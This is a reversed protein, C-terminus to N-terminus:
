GGARRSSTRARPMLPARSPEKIYTVSSPVTAFGPVAPLYLGDIDIIIDTYGDSNYVNFAMVGNLDAITANAVTQGPSFNLDSTRPVNANHHTGDDEYVTLWGTATPNTATINLAMAAIPDGTFSFDYFYGGQLKCTCSRSDFLRAPQGTIFPSGNGGGPGTFWGNIDIILDTTGGSNFFSIQGGQGVRAIVRNAVAQGPLFNVNSATPRPSGAPFVTIWGAKSPSTVTVNLVIAGTDGPINFYGGAFQITRTEGPALPQHLGGNATSIYRSDYWRQPGQSHYLGSVLYSDTSDGYWGEVDVILNAPSSVYFNVKGGAGVAIQTLNPVTRGATWNLNSATPRSLGAPYATLFGTGSTNTVTVNLVVASVGTAPVGGHGAVQFGLTSGAGLRRVPVGGTGNRTDLLRKPTLPNFTGGAIPTVSNSPASPASTGNTNTATVTFTHPVPSLGAILVSFKNADVNAIAGGSSQVKYGTIASKGHDAPANWTVIAAGVGVTASVNTPPSPSGDAPIAPLSVIELASASSPVYAVLYGTLGDGSLAAGRQFTQPTGFSASLIVQTPDGIQYGTADTTGVQRSIGGLMKAGTAGNTDIGVPFNDSAYVTGDASFDSLNYEIFGASNPIAAIFHTGDPNVAVDRANNYSITTTRTVLPSGSSVDILDISSPVTNCSFAILYSPNGAHNTGYHACNALYNTNYDFVNDYAHASPTQATVDISAPEISGADNVTTWLLGGAYALDGPQLLGTVLPSTESLSAIDIRDIAGTGLSVYLIGGQEVMASAGTEGTITKVLNGSLDLVLVSDGGTIFVHTPDVLIRGFGTFPLTIPSAAHAAHPTGAFGIAAMLSVAILAVARVKGGM